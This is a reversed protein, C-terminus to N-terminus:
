EANQLRPKQNERKKLEILLATIDAPTVGQVRSAQGVSRPRIVALKQRAETSLGYLKAYDISDPITRDELASVRAIQALQREIYGGYKAEIEVRELNESDPEGLFSAIERHTVEPRKLLQYALIANDVPSSGRSVLVPNVEDPKLYRSRLRDATENVLRKRRKVMELMDEKVLGFQVGYGALREDANDQRLILRYEARSTFMRYPEEVDKTVLDDIMVGIYSESRRPIFGEEGKLSRAANVGAILGQAAAEEYGSTGNIQGALFLGKISKTELTPFLQLPKVFDYEVAYGPKLIEVNELGRISRLMDMQVDIPLSTSVGNLYCVNTNRGDPEVFVQHSSRDAFRVAKDEISPCYRPGIGKIVGRYLPSRDLNARIIAHVKENTRTLYCDVQQPNFDITRHSFHSPESDGRQVEMVDFDITTGNVRPSTGTKLRGLELGLNALSESLGISPAEGLRGAPQSEMGVHMLGNMFTGAAIVIAGCAYELGSSDTLGVIKGGHALIRDVTGKRLELNSQSELVSKMARSYDTRDSQARLSWVAPGKKVNLMKFQIGTKDTNLGMEGGLADIEFVLHSKGLGGVAPNCPMHGVRDLDSTLLLVSAGMRASALAAECGAHGAGVVVIDYRESRVISQRM